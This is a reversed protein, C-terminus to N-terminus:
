PATDARRRVMPDHQKGKVARVEPWISRMQYAVVSVLNAAGGRAYMSVGRSDERGPYIQLTACSVGIALERM